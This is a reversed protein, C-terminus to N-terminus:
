RNCSIYFYYSIGASFIHLLKPVIYLFRIIFTKQRFTNQISSYNFITSCHTYSLLLLSLVLLIDAVFRFAVICFQLYFGSGVDPRLHHSLIVIIRLSFTLSFTSQDQESYPGIAPKHVSYHVDIVSSPNRSYSLVM